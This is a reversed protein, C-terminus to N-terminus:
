PIAASAIYTSNELLVSRAVSLAKFMVANHPCKLNQVSCKWVVEFAIVWSLISGDDDGESWICCRYCFSRINSPPHHELDLKLEGIKIKYVYKVAISECFLLCIYTIKKICLACRSKVLFDRSQSFRKEM